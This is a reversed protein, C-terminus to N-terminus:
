WENSWVNVDQVREEKTRPQNSTCGTDSGGYGFIGGACDNISEAVLAQMQLDVSMISPAEYVKDAM